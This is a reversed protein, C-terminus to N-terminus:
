GGTSAALLARRRELSEKPWYKASQYYEEVAPTNPPLV